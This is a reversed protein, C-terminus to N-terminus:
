VVKHLTRHPVSPQRSVTPTTLRSRCTVSPATPRPGVVRLSGKRSALLLSPAPPTHSPVDADDHSLSRNANGGFHPTLMRNRQNVSRCMRCRCLCARRWPSPNNAARQRSAAPDQLRSASPYWTGAAIIGALEKVDCAGGAAAQGGSGSEVARRRHSAQGAKRRRQAAAAHAWSVAHSYCEAAPRIAKGQSSQCCLPM